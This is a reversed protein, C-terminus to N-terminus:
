TSLYSLLFMGSSLTTESKSGATVSSTSSSSSSSSSTDAQICPPGQIISGLPPQLWQDFALAEKVQQQQITPKKLQTNTPSIIQQQDLKGNTTTSPPSLKINSTSNETNLKSLGNSLHHRPSLTAVTNPPPHNFYFAHQLFEKASPQQNFHHHRALLKLLQPDFSSIPPAVSNSPTSTTTTMRIYVSHNLLSPRCYVLLSPSLSFFGFFHLSSLLYTEKPAVVVAGQTTYSLSLSPSRCDPCYVYDEIRENERKRKEEKEGDTPRKRITSSIYTHAHINLLLPSSQRPLSLASYLVLLMRWCLFISSFPFFCRARSTFTSRALAPLYCRFLTTTEYCCKCVCACFRVFLSLFM